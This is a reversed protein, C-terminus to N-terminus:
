VGRKDGHALVHLRASMNYGHASCADMVWPLASLIAETSRGEPMLWIRDAPVDLRERLDAIEDLDEEGTVVFKLTAGHGLLGQLADPVIRRDYPVGSHALKPSCNVQPSLAALRTPLPFTGNTEIECTVGHGALTEVLDTLPEAQVLPEGGSIVVRTAVGLLALAQQAVEAVPLRTLEAKRDYATGNKGQWDWTYPTDCWSCDLNCLGLRVFVVPRGQSPGEGQLTPGFVESVLLSSMRRSGGHM